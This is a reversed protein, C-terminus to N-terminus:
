GVIKKCITKTSFYKHFINVGSIMLQKSKQPKYKRITISRFKLQRM